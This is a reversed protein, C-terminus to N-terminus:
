TLVEGIPICAALLANKNAPLHAWSRGACVRRATTPAIQYRSAMETISKGLFNCEYKITAAEAESLKARSAGIVANAETLRRTRAQDRRIRCLLCYVKGNFSRRRNDGMHSECVLRSKLNKKEAAALIGNQPCANFRGKAICDQMNDQRTGAFLHDPNVCCPNDCRHCIHLGNPIEGRFLEFSIRHAGITRGYIGMKGYGSPLVAGIWLWCGSNPEPIYKLEFKQLTGWSAHPM